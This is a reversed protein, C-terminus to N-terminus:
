ARTSPAYVGGLWNRARKSSSATRILQRLGGGSPVQRYGGVGPRFVRVRPEGVPRPCSRGAPPSDRVGTRKSGKSAALASLEECLETPIELATERECRSWRGEKRAQAEEPFGPGCCRLRTPGLQDDTRGTGSSMARVGRRLGTSGFRSDPRSPSVPLRPSRRVPGPGRVVGKGRPGRCSLM